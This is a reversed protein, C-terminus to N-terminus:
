LLVTALGGNDFRVFCAAFDLPNLCRPTKSEVAQGIVSVPRCGTIHLLPAVAHTNYYFPPLWCRWHYSGNPLRVLLHRIDQCFEAEGYLFEGLEGAKYLREMELVDRYYCTNTALMYQRGSAEVAEVLAVGEALTHFATVESFVHKGAQLARVADPGHEHCFGALILIDFDEQLLEGYDRFLKAAPFRAGFSSLAPESVDCGAVIEVDAHEAFYGALV